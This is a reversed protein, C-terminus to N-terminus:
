RESGSMFQASLDAQWTKEPFTGYDTVMVREADDRIAPEISLYQRLEALYAAEDAVRGDVHAQKADEVLHKLTLYDM